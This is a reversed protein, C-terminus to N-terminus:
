DSLWHTTDSSDYITQKRPLFTLFQGHGLVAIRISSFSTM